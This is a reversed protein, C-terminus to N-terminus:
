RREREASRESEELDILREEIGVDRAVPRGLVRQEMSELARVALRDRVRELHATSEHDPYLRPELSDLASEAAWRQDRWRLWLDRGAAALVLTLAAFLWVTVALAINIAGGGIAARTVSWVIRVGSLTAYLVIAIAIIGWAVFTAMLVWATRTGAEALYREVLRRLAMM